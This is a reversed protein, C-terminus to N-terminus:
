PGTRGNSPFATPRRTLRWTAAGPGYGGGPDRPSAVQDNKKVRPVHGDVALLLVYVTGGKGSVILEGRSTPRYMPGFLTVLQVCTWGYRSPPCFAPRVDPCAGTPAVEMGKEDSPM